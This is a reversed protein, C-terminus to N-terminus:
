ENDEVKYFLQKDILISAISSDNCTSPIDVKQVLLESKIPHRYKQRVTRGKNIIWGNGGICEDREIHGGRIENSHTIFLALISDNQIKYTGGFSLVRRLGFFENTGFLFTGDSFFTYHDLYGAALEASGLQWTGLINKATIQGYLPIFSIYTLFLIITTRM